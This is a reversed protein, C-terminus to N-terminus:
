DVVVRVFLGDDGGAGYTRTNGARPGGASVDLVALWEGPRGSISTGAMTYSGNEWKSFDVTLALNGRHLSPTVAIKRMSDQEQGVAIWGLRVEGRRRESASALYFTEGSYVSLRPIPARGVGYVRAGSQPPRTAFQVRLRNPVEDLSRILETLESSISNEARVVLRSGVLTFSMEDTYLERLGALVVEPRSHALEYVEVDAASPRPM